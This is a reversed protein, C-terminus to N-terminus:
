PILYLYEADVAWNITTAAVGVVTVIVATGSNNIVITTSLAMGTGENRLFGSQAGIAAVAGAAYREMGRKFTWVGSAGTDARRAMVSIGVVVIANDPCPWTLVTTVTTGDTTQAVGSLKDLRRTAM